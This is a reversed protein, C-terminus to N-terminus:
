AGAFGAVVAGGVAALTQATEPDELVALLRSDRTKALSAKTAQITAYDIDTLKLAALELLGMGEEVEALSVDQPTKNICRRLNRARAAAVPDEAVARLRIMPSYAAKTDYEFWQMVTATCVQASASGGNFMFFVKSRPNSSDSYSNSLTTTVSSASKAEDDASTPVWIIVQQDGPLWARSKLANGDVDLVAAATGADSLSTTATSGPIVGYTITPRASDDTLTSTLSVVMRTCRMNQAVAQVETINPHAVASELWTGSWTTANTVIHTADVWPYVIEGRDASASSLSTGFSYQFQMPVSQRFTGDALPGAGLAAAAAQGNRIETIKDKRRPGLKGQRAKKARARGRKKEARARERNDRKEERKEKRAARRAKGGGAM